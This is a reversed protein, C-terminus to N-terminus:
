EFYTDDTPVQPFLPKEGPLHAMKTFDQEEIEHVKIRDNTLALEM